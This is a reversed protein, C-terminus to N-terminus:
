RHGGTGEHYHVEGRPAQDHHHADDLLLAPGGLVMVHGGYTARLVQPDLILNAPGEVIVRRNIAVVKGFCSAACGLDHTSAIVTKGRAAEQQLVAMLDEQTRTDIGTVPEDLLYLEPEAAIARAIFVRRRQGGSLAGIQRDRADSM